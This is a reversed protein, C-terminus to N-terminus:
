QYMETWTKIREVGIEVEIEDGVSVIGVIMEIATEIVIANGVTM